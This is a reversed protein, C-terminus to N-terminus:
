KGGGLLKGAGKFLRGILGPRGVEGEKEDEPNRFGISVGSSTVSITVGNDLRNEDIPVAASFTQNEFDAFEAFAGLFFVDPVLDFSVLRTEGPYLPSLSRRDLVVGALEPSNNDFIEWFTAAEFETRTGLQYIRVVIPNSADNYKNVNSGVEVNLTKNIPAPTGQDTACGLFATCTIVGVFTTAWSM